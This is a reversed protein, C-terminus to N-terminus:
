KMKVSDSCDWTALPSWTPWCSGLGGGSCHHESLQPNQDQKNLDQAPGTRGAAGANGGPDEERLDARQGKSLPDGVPEESM